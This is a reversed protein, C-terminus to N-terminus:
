KNRIKESLNIYLPKLLKGTLFSRLLVKGVKASYPVLQKLGITRWGTFAQKIYSTLITEVSSSNIQSNKLLVELYDLSKSVDKLASRNRTLQTGGGVTYTYVPEGFIYIDKEKLLVEVLFDQDEGMSLPPFRLEGYVSRSFVYRWIGPDMIHRAFNKNSIKPETVLNAVNIKAKLIKYAGKAILYGKNDAIEVMELYKSADPFDDSDWFCIWDTNVLELGANRASGPNGYVGEILDVSELPKNKLLNILSEKQSKGFTDAVVVM